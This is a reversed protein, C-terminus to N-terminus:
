SEKYLLGILRYTDRLSELSTPSLHLAPVRRAHAPRIDSLARWSGRRRRTPMTQHATTNGDHVFPRWQYLGTAVSFVAHRNDSKKSKKKIYRQFAPFSAHSPTFFTLLTTYFLPSSTAALYQKSIAPVITQHQLFIVKTNCSCHNPTTPHM